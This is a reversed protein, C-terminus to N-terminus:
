KFLYYFISKRTHEATYFESIVGSKLNDVLEKTVKRYDNTTFEILYEPRDDPLYAIIEISNGINVFDVSHIVEKSTIGKVLDYECEYIKFDYIGQVSTLIITSPVLEKHSYSLDFGDVINYENIENNEHLVTIKEECVWRTAKITWYRGIFYIIFLILTAISAILSIINLM